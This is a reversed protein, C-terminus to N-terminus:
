MVRVRGARKPRNTLAYRLSDIAHTSCNGAIMEPDNSDYVASTLERVLNPCMGRFIKLGVSGDQRKALRAHIASLGAAVSGRGKEVPFWACGMSNMQEGRSAGLGVNAFAASDIPGGLTENLEVTQRLGPGGVHVPLTRDMQLIARAAAEPTLQRQYLERVIYITDTGDEDHALWLVCMPAAYGDDCSRYLRWSAPVPFPDLLHLESRWESFV